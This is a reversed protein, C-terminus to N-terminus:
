EDFETISIDEEVIHLEGDDGVVSLKEDMVTDGEPTVVAITEDTAMTKGEGDVAVVLDDVVLNGGADVNATEFEVVGLSGEAGSGAATMSMSREKAAKSRRALGYGLAGAALVVFILRKRKM